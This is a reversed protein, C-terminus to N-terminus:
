EVVFKKRAELGSAVEKAVVLYTGPAENLSLPISGEIRGERSLLNCGYYPIVKGDPAFVDVRMALGTGRLSSPSIDISYRVEQGKKYNSKETKLEIGQVPAPLLAFVKAASPALSTTFQDTHGLSKKERVDYVYFEGALKVKVSPGLSRSDKTQYDRILCLYEAKGNKFSSVEIDQRRGGEADEIEAFPKVGALESILRVIGACIGKAEGGKRKDYYGRIYDALYVAKGKGYSNINLREFKGFVSLLSSKELMKGHEDMIGPAFDAILIGGRKVFDKIKEVEELSIAQSYPLILVKYDKLRGTKVDDPSIYRYEYGGDRLVVHFDYLSDKWLTEKPRITGAHLCSNSYYLAIPHIRRQSCILIKGIGSKIEKIEEAAQRFHALPSYDPSFAAPGGLGQNNGVGATWWSVSNMGWFLMHWPFYRMQESTAGRYSGFWGSTIARAPLFSMLAKVEVIHRLDAYPGFFRFRPLMQYFNFGTSSRTPYVPGEIGVAASRDVQTIAKVCAHHYDAFLKDMFLRFDVWQPYRNLKYADVLTIPKVEKWDKYDSGWENNLSTLDPYIGKLYSRFGEQCKKCFCVDFHPFALANEDGLSYYAPGLPGYARAIDNLHRIRASKMREEPSELLPCNRIEPGDPGEVPKLHPAQDSALFIRIAYPAAKLGARALRLAIERSKEYDDWSSSTNYLIDVGYRAFQKLYTNVSRSKNLAQAWIIFSFDHILSSFDTTNIYFPIEAEDLVGSKDELIARLTYASTLPRAIKFAFRAKGGDLPPSLSILKRLYNDEAEIMLSLGDTPAKSLQVKGKITEGRQYIDKDLSIKEIQFPSLISVAVSAWNIVKKSNDKVWIDIIKEGAKLLPLSISAEGTRSSLSRQLEIRNTRDRVTYEIHFGTSSDKGELTFNIKAEPLRDRLIEVKGEPLGKFRVDPEKKSAWLSAKALLSFYYDYYLPHESALPTLSELRSSEKLWDSPKKEGYDISVLRGKGLNGSRILKGTPIDKLRPIVSLPIGEIILDRAGKDEKFASGLEGSLDSPSIYVLGTGRRVKDLITKQISKPFVGWPMKGIVILDYNADRGLREKVLSQFEEDSITLYYSREGKGKVPGFYEYSETMLPTYDISLREALEVTERQTWTPAIVLVKLKGKYYPVAFPIHPTVLSTSLKDYPQAPGFDVAGVESGALALALGLFWVLRSIRTRKEM